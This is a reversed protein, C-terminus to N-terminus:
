CTGSCLTMSCQRCFFFFFFACTFARLFGQKLVRVRVQLCVNTRYQTIFYFMCLYFTMDCQATFYFVCLYFTMDYQAIFYLMSLHLNLRYRPFVCLYVTMGNHQLVSYAGTCPWVVRSYFLVRVLVLDYWYTTFCFVCLYLTVSSRQLVSCACTCLWVVITYFLVRM